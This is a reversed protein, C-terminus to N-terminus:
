NNPASEFFCKDGQIFDILIGEQKKIELAKLIRAEFAFDKFRLIPMDQPFIWKISRIYNWRLIEIAIIELFSSYDGEALNKLIVKVASLPCKGTLKKRMLEAFQNLMLEKNVLINRITNSDDDYDNSLEVQLNGYLSDKKTTFKLKEWNKCYDYLEVEVCEKGQQILDFFRVVGEIGPEKFLLYSDLWVKNGSSIIFEETGEKEYNWKFKLGKDYVQPADVPEIWEIKDKFEIGSYGKFWEQLQKIECIQMIYEGGIINRDRKKKCFKRKVIGKDFFM